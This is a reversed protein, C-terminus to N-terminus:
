PLQLVRYFRERVDSAMDRKTATGDAPVVEGPIDVWGGASLDSNFQVRYTRNSIARWTVDVGTGNRVLSKLVPPFDSSWVRRVGAGGVILRGDSQIAVPNGGESTAFSTDLTGDSNLRSLPIAVSGDLPSPTGYIIRGDRQVFVSAGAGGGTVNQFTEDLTGDPNFRYQGALIKGDAQVAITSAGPSVSPAFTMDLTGDSNLRAFYLRDHGNVKTFGGSILLKGDAQLAIGTLAYSGAISPFGTDLTGDANLRALNTRAVGNVSLFRGALFVKGDQQV